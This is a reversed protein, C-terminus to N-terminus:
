GRWRLVALAVLTLLTVIAGILVTWGHFCFIVEHSGAPLEVSRLVGHAAVIEVREGDIEATWGPYVIESLVLQGPGTAGLIIRNSSWEIINVETWSSSADAPDEIWARPRVVANRYLYVGDYERVLSLDDAELEFASAVWSVNLMGLQQADIQPSWDDAPDGSPFPPLTVSYADVSFGTASAMFDRYSALQLPNVGDALEIGEAAAVQQPVSYSPSFIRGQQPEDGMTESLFEPSELVTEPLQPELLSANVIGLDIVILMMMGAIVMRPKINRALCILAWAAALAGLGTSITWAQWGDVAQRMGILAVGACLVVFFAGLAAVTLRMRRMIKAPMEERLLADLGWGALLALALGFVFLWRPPVRLMNFGPVIASLLGYLPTQDGRSLLLSALAVIGWFGSQPRARVIALVALLLVAAGAYTLWEAYGGLDPLVIGFLQGAPLSLITQEGASLATRTSLSAFEWLPLALVAAMGAGFLTMVGGSAGIQKWRLGEENRRRTILSAGYALALLGTPLAWRPDIIFVLGLGAGALAADFLRLRTAAKHLALLVWPTWSVAMVLSVHGLGVHGVLKPFGGFALGAVIAGPLGAGETRMLRYAGWGALALHVWLLLNFGLSLPLVLLLWNPPYWLGALPDAAFPAGSLIMPNWLPIQGEELLSRQLFSANPLHSVLLDSYQSGPQFPVCAPCSLLPSLWIMGAILFLGFILLPRAKM